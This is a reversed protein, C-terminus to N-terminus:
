VIWLLLVLLTLMIYLLYVTLNGGQFFRLRSLHKASAKLLPSSLTDLMPDPVHSQFAHPLPFLGHIRRWHIKPRLLARFGRIFGDAFSSASYQMRHSPAAYGCDWTPLPSASHTEASRTSENRGKSYRYAMFGLGLLATNLLSLILWPNPHGTSPPTPLGTLCAVAPSSLKIAAFPAMGIFLCLIAPIAMARLMAIPSEKAQAAERSRAMGLFAIGFVKAFCALALAGILALSAIIIVPWLSRGSQLASFASLYILLESVFGNLPPLGCIAWAGIFFALATNPMRRGLAGLREIHRTFTGRIMSGAALFLLAKFLSHNLVHLLAGAFGLYAAMPAHFTMGLSGIGLGMLIIGINEISHYALLRKIDHQGLAFLVGLIGSLAGLATLAGGVFAPAEPVWSLFRLMGLVGMKILVGSMFASVHSPAAAHAGPLWFHLPFAGMKLGFGTLFLWFATKGNASAIFAAPLTAFQFSGTAKALLSFAAFLCLTGTHTAVLYIWAARRTDAQRDETIVLFFATIAMLEWALLFTIAHSASVLMALFATLLGYLLRLRKANEKFSPWYAMGYIAGCAPILMVPILFFAAIADFRLLGPSGFPTAPLIIQAGQGTIWVQISASVGCLAASGLFMASFKEGQRPFLLGMLGSLAALLIALLYFTM